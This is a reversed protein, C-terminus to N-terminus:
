MNEEKYRKYAEDIVNKFCNYDEWSFGIGLITRHLQTEMCACYDNLYHTDYYLDVFELIEDSLDERSLVGDCNNMLFDNGKMNENKVAEIDEKEDAHLSSLYNNQIIWTMFFAIHNGAYDWILEKDKDILDEYTIGFQNYYEKAASDWQYKSKDYKFKTIERKVQQKKVKEKKFIDFLGM